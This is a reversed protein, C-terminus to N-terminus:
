KQHPYTRGPVTILSATYAQGQCGTDYFYSLMQFNGGVAYQASATSALLLALVAARQLLM